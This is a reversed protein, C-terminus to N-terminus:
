YKKTLSFNSQIVLGLYNESFMEETYGLQKYYDYQPKFHFVKFMPEIPIIVIPLTKLLFEGYWSFESPNSKILDFFTLGQPKLQTEELLKWVRCSWIVPSPGFDFYRGTRQLSKMIPARTEEFGIKPDHGIKNKYKSTFEFLDKQEHMVTYPTNEDYMFDSVYFDKIFYSDSDIMVYNECVGLKWFSSKVIQQTFWGGNIRDLETLFSLDYIDEDFVLNIYDTDLKEKALSEDEKPISVYFPISDKNYKKISESLVKVRDLDRSFTKCYLVIKHM